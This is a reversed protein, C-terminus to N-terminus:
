FRLMKSLILEEQALSICCSLLTTAMERFSTCTLFDTIQFFNVAAMKLVKQRAM